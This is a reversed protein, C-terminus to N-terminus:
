SLVATNVKRVQEYKRKGLIAKGKQNSVNANSIKMHITSPSTLSIKFLM